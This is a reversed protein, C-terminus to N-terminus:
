QQEDAQETQASGGVRHSCATSRGCAAGVGARAARLVAAVALMAVAM